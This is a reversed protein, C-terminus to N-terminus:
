RGVDHIRTSAPVREGLGIANSFRPSSSASVATAAPDLSHRDRLGGTMRVVPEEHVDAPVDMTFAGRITLRKWGAPPGGLAPEPKESCGSLSLLLLPVLALTRRV